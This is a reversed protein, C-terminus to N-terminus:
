DRPSSALSGDERLRLGQRISYKREGGWQVFRTDNTWIEGEVKIPELLSDLKNGDAGTACALDRILNLVKRVDRSSVEQDTAGTLHAWRKDLKEWLPGFVRDADDSDIGNPLHREQTEVGRIDRELELLPKVFRRLLDSISASLTVDKKPKKLKTM